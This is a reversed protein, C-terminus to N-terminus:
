ISILYGLALTQDSVKVAKWDLQKMILSVVLLNTAQDEPFKGGIESDTMKVYRNVLMDVNNLSYGRKAMPDNTLHMIANAISRTHVGGIGYVEFEKYSKLGSIKSKLLSELYQETSSVNKEGIPNPTNRKKLKKMIETRIGNSGPLGIILTTKKECVISFQMSNGGFDWVIFNDRPMEAVIISMLGINAEEDPTLIKISGGIVEELDSLFVDRDELYRYVGTAIGFIRQVKFKKTLHRIGKSITKLREIARADLATMGNPKQTAGKNTEIEWDTKALTKIEKKECINKEAILMKVRSTGYEVVAQKQWCSDEGLKLSGCSSFLLLFVGIILFSQNM